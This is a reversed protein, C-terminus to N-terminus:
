YSGSSRACFIRSAGHANSIPLQSCPEAGRRSRIAVRTSPKEYATISAQQLGIFVNALPSTRQRAAVESTLPLLGPLPLRAAPAHHLHGTRLMRSQKCIAGANKEKTM